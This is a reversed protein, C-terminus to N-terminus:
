HFSLKNHNEEEEKKKLKLKKKNKFGLHEDDCRLFRFIELFVSCLGIGYRVSGLALTYTFYLDFLHLRELRLCSDFISIELSIFHEFWNFVGNVNLGCNHHLNHGILLM